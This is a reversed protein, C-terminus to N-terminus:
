TSGPEASCPEKARPHHQTKMPPAMTERQSHGESLRGPPATGLSCRLTMQKPDCGTFPQTRGQVQTEQHQTKHGKTTQVTSCGSGQGLASATLQLVWLRVYLLAKKGRSHWYLAPPQSYKLRYPAVRWPTPHPQPQLNTLEQIRGVEQFTATEWGVWFLSGLM